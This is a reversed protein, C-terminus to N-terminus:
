SVVIYTFRFASGIHERAWYMDDEIDYGYEDWLAVFARAADHAARTSRFSERPMEPWETAFPGPWFSLRHFRPPKATM